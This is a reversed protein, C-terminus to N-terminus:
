SNRKELDERIQTVLIKSCNVLEAIDADSLGLRTISNEIIAKQFLLRGKEIGIDIGLVRGKEIGKEIGEARGKEIGIDIGERKAKDLLYEKTNM